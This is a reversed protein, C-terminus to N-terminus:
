ALQAKRRTWGLSFLGTLLLALVGPAPVSAANKAVPSLQYAMYSGSTNNLRGNGIIQGNDNALFASSLAEWGFSNLDGAIMEGLDFYGDLLTFGFARNGKSLGLDDFLSYFGLGLGSDNLFQFGSNSYGNAGTSNSLNFGYTNLSDDDFFWATNGKYNDGEYRESNGTM